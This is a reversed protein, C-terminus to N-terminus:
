REVIYGWCYLDFDDNAVTLDYQLRQTGDAIVTFPMTHPYAGQLSSYTGENTYLRLVGTGSIRNAGAQVAIIKRSESLATALDLTHKNTDAHTIDAIKGSYPVFVVQGALGAVSIEDDEGDQHSTKHALPTQSDGLLGSLGLVSIEDDGTNQHSTKHAGPAMGTLDLEDSGADQHTLKHPVGIQPM